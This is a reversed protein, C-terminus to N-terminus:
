SHLGTTCPCLSRSWSDIHHPSQSVGCLNSVRQVLSASSSVWDVLALERVATLRPAVWRLHREAQAAMPVPEPEAAADDSCDMYGPGCM